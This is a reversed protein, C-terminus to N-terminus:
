APHGRDRKQSRAEALGLGERAGRLGGVGGWGGRRRRRGRNKSDDQARRELAFSGSSARGVEVARGKRGCIEGM